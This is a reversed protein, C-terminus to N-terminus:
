QVDVDRRVKARILPIDNGFYGRDYRDLADQLFARVQKKTTDTGEVTIVVEAVFTTQKPM